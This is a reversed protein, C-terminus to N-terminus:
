FPCGDIDDPIDLIPIDPADAIPKKPAPKPEEETKKEAAKEREKLVKVPDDEELLKTLADHKEKRAEATRETLLTFAFVSYNTYTKKTAFDYHNTVNCSDLRISCGETLQTAKKAAEGVFRVFAGFDQSLSGDALKHQSTLLATYYKNGSFATKETIREVRLWAGQAYAM